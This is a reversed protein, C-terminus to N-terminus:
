RKSKVANANNELETTVKIFELWLHMNYVNDKLYNEITSDEVRADRCRMYLDYISEGKSINHRISAHAEDNEFNEHHQIYSIISGLLVAQPHNELRLLKNNAEADFALHKLIFFEDSDIQDFPKQLAALTLEAKKSIKIEILPTTDGLSRELLKALLPQKNRPTLGRPSSSGLSIRPSGTRPSGARPSETRPSSARPSGPHSSRLDLSKRPSGSRSSGLDLSKRPSGAGIFKRPSEPASGSGLSNSRTERTIPSNRGSINGFLSRSRPRGPESTKYLRDSNEEYLALLSKGESQEWFTPIHSKDAPDHILISFLVLSFQSKHLSTPNLDRCFLKLLTIDTDTLEPAPKRFIDECVKVSDPTGLEILQRAEASEKLHEVWEADTNRLWEDLEGEEIRDQAQKRQSLYFEEAKHLDKLLQGKVAALPDDRGQM